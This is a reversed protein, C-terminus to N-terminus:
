PAPVDPQAPPEEGRHGYTLYVQAHHQEGPITGWHDLAREDYYDNSLSTENFFHRDFDMARGARMDEEDYYDDVHFKMVFLWKARGREFADTSPYDRRIFFDSASVDYSAAVIPSYVGYFRPSQDDPDSAELMYYGTPGWNTHRDLAQNFRGMRAEFTTFTRMFGMDPEDIWTPDWGSAHGTTNPTAWAQEWSVMNCNQSPVPLGVGTDGCGNVGFLRYDALGNDDIDQDTLYLIRGGGGESARIMEPHDADPYLLYTGWASRAAAYRTAFPRLYYDRHRRSLEAGRARRSNFVFANSELWLPQFNVHGRFNYMHEFDEATCETGRYDAYQAEYTAGDPWSPAGATMYRSFMFKMECHTWPAVSHDVRRSGHGHAGFGYNYGDRAGTRSRHSHVARMTRVMREYAPWTLQTFLNETTDFSSVDRPSAYHTRQGVAQLRQALLEPYDRLEGCLSRIFNRAKAVMIEEDTGTRDNELGYAVRWETYSFASRYGRAVADMADQVLPHEWRVQRVYPPSDAYTCVANDDLVPSDLDPRGLREDPEEPDTDLVRVTLLGSLLRDSLNHVRLTWNRVEEGPSVAEVFPRGGPEGYVDIEYHKASLQAELDEASTLEARISGASVRFRKTEGPELDVVEAERLVTGADPLEEVATITLTGRLRDGGLNHVRLTWNRLEEDQGAPAAADIEPDSAAEGEIEIDYHKATLMSPVSGDQLLEAHFRTASVRFWRTEGPALDIEVERTSVSDDKTGISGLDEADGPTGDGESVPAACAGLWVMSLALPLPALVRSALRISASM